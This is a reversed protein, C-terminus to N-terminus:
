QFLQLYPRVVAIEFHELRGTKADQLTRFSEVDTPPETNDQPWAASTRVEMM